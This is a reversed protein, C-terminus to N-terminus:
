KLIPSKTLDESPWRCSALTWARWFLGTYLLLLYSLMPIFRERSFFTLYPLMTYITGQRLIHSLTVHDLDKGALSHSIPFCHRFRERSFFTLYPLVHNLIIGQWLIHPLTVYDLDTGALSHSIPYCPRFRERGFFTLYLLM